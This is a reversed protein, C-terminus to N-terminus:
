DQHGQLTAICTAKNTQSPKDSVEQINWVKVLMDGSASVIQKDYPSFQVDWVNKRHGALTALLQLDKASWLKISKDQSATAIMKDNPSFKAVNIYKQHAM